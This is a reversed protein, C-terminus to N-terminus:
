VDNISPEPAGCDESAAIIVKPSPVNLYGVESTDSRSVPLPLSSEPSREVNGEETVKIVPSSQHAAESFSENPLNIMDDTRLLWDSPIMMAIDPLNLAQLKKLVHKLSRMQNYLQLVSERLQQNEHDLFQSRNMLSRLKWKLNSVTAEHESIELLLQRKEEHLHENVATISNILQQEKETQSKSVSLEMELQKIRHDKQNLENLYIEKARSLKAKHRLQMENYKRISDDLRKLLIDYEKLLQEKEQQMDQLKELLKQNASECSTRESTVSKREDDLHQLMSQQQHLKIQLTCNSETLSIEKEHLIKIEQQLVELSEDLVKKKLHEEQLEMKVMSEKERAKKLEEELHRKDATQTELLTIQHQSARLQQQLESVLKEADVARCKEHELKEQWSNQVKSNRSMKLLELETMKIKQQQQDREAELSSLMATVSAYKQKVHSLEESVKTQEKQLLINQKKIELNKDREYRLEKEASSCVNHVRNLDQRLQRIEEFQQQIFADGALNKSVSQEAGDGCIQPRPMPNQMNFLDQRLRVIEERKVQLDQRAVTVEQRLELNEEWLRHKEELGEQIQRQLTECKRQHESLAASYIWKEKELDKGGEGLHKNTHLKKEGVESKLKKCQEMLESIKDDQLRKEKELHENRSRLNNNEREARLLQDQIGKLMPKLETLEQEMKSKKKLDTSPGDSRCAEDKAECQEALETLESELNIITRQLGAIESELYDVQEKTRNQSEGLISELEENREVIDDLEAQLKKLKHLLQKNLYEKEEVELRCKKHLEESDQLSMRTSTSDSDSKESQEVHKKRESDLTRVRQRLALIEKDLRLNHEKAKQLDASDNEKLDKLQQQLENAEQKKKEMIHELENIEKKKILLDDTLKRIEDHAMKLRQAAENLDREVCERMKREKELEEDFSSCANKRTGFLKKWPKQVPSLTEKYLTEKTRRMSERQQYLEEELTRHIQELEDQQKESSLNESHSDLKLELGELKELLTAREVLLYAVQESPSSQAIESLGEQDLMEEVEKLQLEQQIQMKELEIRLQINEKEFDTTLAEREETLSRIHAVYSEVETMEEAQQRKLEELSNNADLLNREAVQYLNWLFALYDETSNGPSLGKEELKSIIEEVEYHVKDM